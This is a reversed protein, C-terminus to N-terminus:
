EFTVRWLAFEDGFLTGNSRSYTVYQVRGGQESLERGRATHPDARAGARQLGRRGAPASCAALAALTGVPVSLRLWM